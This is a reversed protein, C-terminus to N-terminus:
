EALYKKMVLPLGSKFKSNNCKPTEGWLVTPCIRDVGAELGWCDAMCPKGCGMEERYSKETDCELTEQSWIYPCGLGCKQVGTVGWRPWGKAKMTWGWSFFVQPGLLLSDWILLYRFHPCFILFFFFFLWRYANGKVGCFGWGTLLFCM